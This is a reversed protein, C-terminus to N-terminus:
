QANLLDNQLSILKNTREISTEKDQLKQLEEDYYEEMVEKQKEIDKIYEQVTSTTATYIKEKLTKQDELLALQSDRLAKNTQNLQDVLDEIAEDTM